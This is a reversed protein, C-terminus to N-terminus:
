TLFVGAEEPVKVSHVSPELPVLIVLSVVVEVVRWRLDHLAVLEVDEVGVEDVLSVTM